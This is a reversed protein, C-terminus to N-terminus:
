SIAANDNEKDIILARDYVTEGLNNVLTSNAGRRIMLQAVEPLECGHLPVNSDSDRM